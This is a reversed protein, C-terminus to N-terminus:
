SKKGGLSSSEVPPFMKEMEIKLKSKEPSISADTAKEDRLKRYLAKLSARYVAHWSARAAFKFTRDVVLVAGPIAALVAASLKELTFAGAAHLSAAVSTVIGVWVFIQALPFDRREWKKHHETDEISGSRGDKLIIEFTEWYFTNPPGPIASGSVWDGKVNIAGPLSTISRGRISWGHAGHWASGIYLGCL